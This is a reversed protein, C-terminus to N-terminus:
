APTSAGPTRAARLHRWIWWAAGLVLVAGILADFKHFYPRLTDWNEGLKQGVYALGLCWPFSGVFTYIIFKPMNMRVVGAPFAIFTRIVPLMRAALIVVDGRKAFLADAMDLDHKSLLVYKGYREILPRGGYAGLYYAPISGLVCGLAGAFAVVWLNMKGLAVLSGAFPMIVESPLPICASEIGMLLAVGPYGLAAEVSQVWLGIAELIQHVM